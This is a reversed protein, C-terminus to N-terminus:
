RPMASTSSPTNISRPRELSSVAFTGWRVAGSVRL